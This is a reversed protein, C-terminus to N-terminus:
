CDSLWDLFEGGKLTGSMENGHKCCGEV